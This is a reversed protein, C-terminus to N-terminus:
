LKKQKLMNLLLKKQDKDDLDIKTTEDVDIGHIQKLRCKGCMSVYETHKDSGDIVVRKGKTVFEGYVKKGVLNAKESCFPCPPKIESIVDAIAMLEASGPFYHMTFDNRLGYCEIDIDLIRTLYYLEKVQKPTLFQAEDVLICKIGSDIRDIILNIVNTNPGIVMDVVRGAEFARSVIQQKGKTDIAPKLLLISYDYEEYSHIARMIDLTKGSNMTGYKFYLNAM